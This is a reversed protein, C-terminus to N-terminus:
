KAGELRFLEKFQAIRREVSPSNYVSSGAVLIDAGAKILAKANALDVGGDVEIEFSYGKNERLGKLQSIKDLTAPIFRQGGFGPNVSMVLVLDIDALMCELVKPPTAPNISIGAKKGLGKIYSVTRHIHTCAEWHVTIIDAGASAFDEIYRDVNEIMLHVDFPLNSVERICKIVGPGITINPVFHGDMVDIHLWDAGAKEIKVIEDELRAFNASLLSPALKIM